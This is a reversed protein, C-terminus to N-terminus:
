SPRERPGDTLLARALLVDSDDGLLFVDDSAELRFSGHPSTTTGTQRRVALVTAGTKARI